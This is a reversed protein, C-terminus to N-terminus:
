QSQLIFAPIIGCIEAINSQESKMDYSSVGLQKNWILTKIFHLYIQIVLHGLLKKPLIFCAIPDTINTQM